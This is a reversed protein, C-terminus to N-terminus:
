EKQKERRQSANSFEHLHVPHFPPPLIRSVAVPDRATINHVIRQLERYRETLGDPDVDFGVPLGFLDFYNRTLDLM